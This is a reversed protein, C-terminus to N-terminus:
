TISDVIVVMLEMAEEAEAETPNRKDACIGQRIELLRKAAKCAECECM